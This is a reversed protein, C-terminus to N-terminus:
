PVTVVTGGVKLTTGVDVEGSATVKGTMTTTGDVTLNGTVRVNGGLTITGATAIIAGAALALTVSGDDARLEAGTMNIGALVNPQSRPGVFAFGDSLDHMRYEAPPQVGGAQWWADICRSAFKVTCEDGKAIPFTLTWGGGGAFEVPCDLLLPMDIMKSSGDQLTQKGQITPQATCTMAAPDFSEILAPM